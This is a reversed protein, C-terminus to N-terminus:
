AGEEQEVVDELRDKFVNGVKVRAMEEYSWDCDPIIDGQVTIYLTGDVQDDCATIRRQNNHGEKRGWEHRRPGWNKARGMRQANEYDTDESQFAFDLPADSLPALGEYEMYELTERDDFGLLKAYEFQYWRLTEEPTRDQFPAHFMDASVALTSRIGDSGDGLAALEKMQQLFRRSRIKGNTVVYFTGFFPTPPRPPTLRDLIYQIGRLGSPLTPEGGTLTITSIYDDRGFLAFTADVVERTLSERRPEGRCCHDCQMNCRRTVEIVLSSVNM